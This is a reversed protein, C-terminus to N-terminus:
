KSWPNGFPQGWVWDPGRAREKPVAWLRFIVKVNLLPQFFESSQKTVYSVPLFHLRWHRNIFSIKNKHIQTQSGQAKTATCPSKQLQPSRPSRVAAAERTTSCCARSCTLKTLQPAVPKTVGQCTPDEWVPSRVQTRQMPRHIRLQQVVLSTQFIESYHNWGVKLKLM